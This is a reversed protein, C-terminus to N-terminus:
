KKFYIYIAEKDSVAAAVPVVVAAAAAASSSSSSAAPAPVVVALRPDRVIYPKQYAALGLKCKRDESHQLGEWMFLACAIAATGYTQGQKLTLFEQLQTHALVSIVPIHRPRDRM